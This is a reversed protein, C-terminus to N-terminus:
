NISAIYKRIYDQHKENLGSFEVGCIKGSIRRIKGALSIYRNVPYPLEVVFSINKNIEYQKSGPSLSVGIGKESMDLAYLIDWFRDREITIRVRKNKTLRVRRATRKEKM